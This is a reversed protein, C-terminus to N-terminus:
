FFSSRVCLLLPVTWQGVVMKRGVLVVHGGRRGIVKFTCSLANDVDCEGIVKSLFGNFM